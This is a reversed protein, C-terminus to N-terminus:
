IATAVLNEGGPIALVFLVVKTPEGELVAFEMAKGIIFDKVEISAAILIDRSPIALFLWVVEAFESHM